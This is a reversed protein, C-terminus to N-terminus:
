TRQAWAGQLRRIIVAETDRSTVRIDIWGLDTLEDHRRIDRAFREADRHHAGEYDLAVKIDEWGMDLVAILQGYADHVPIQTKPPPFGNRIVLLRLWTERPSEAGADVLKLLGRAKGMGRRGRYRDVLLEVDAIALGTSRALADMAAVARGAPHRSALDLATRAPTTVRVADIVDVEDDAYRDSWSHVGSPPRRNHWLVEAPRSADVWKAGHLAAASQGAAVGRRRTWLWAAKARIRATVEADAPLYVDPYLVRFRSRLRYPTLAGTAVAESGIFPEERM